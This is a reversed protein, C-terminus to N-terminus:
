SVYKEAARIFAGMEETTGISVRTWGPVDKYSRVWINENKMAEVPDMTFNDNQFFVFNAASPLYRVGMKDFASCVMNRGEIIKMRCYSEYDADRLSALAAAASANSLSISRGQHMDELRLITEPHALGYGIRLGALGHVKSFTRGVILNRYQDVLGAMSSKRGNPSLEVYAEDVYVPHTGAHAAVFDRLRDTPIEVGTPNNPNCVFILKTDQGVRGSIADLDYQHDADLPVRNWTAGFREAFILLFDFTPHCALLEGGHLGYTMGALGLLETSGATVIVHDPTLGERRAIEERLAMISQRPYRNGESLSDMVAKRAADGPGYANENFALRITTEPNLGAPMPPAFDPLAWQSVPLAAAAMTTARLWNRRSYTATM